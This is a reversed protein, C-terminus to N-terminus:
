YLAKTLEIFRKGVLILKDSELNFRGYYCATPYFAWSVIGKQNLFLYIIIGEDAFENTIYLLFDGLSYAIPKNNYIEVGNVVHPHHCIVADAGIDIIERVMKKTALLPELYFESGTHFQVIVFSGKEKQQQINKSLLDKNYNAIGPKKNDATFHKMVEYGRSETPVEAISFFALKMDDLEIIAPKIAEEINRGTGSHRYNYKDLINITNLLSKEGFDMAHNNACAFYDIGSDTFIGFEYESGKFTYRKPEPKLSDSIVCELNVSMIDPVKLIHKIDKFTHELGNKEIEKKLYYEFTFDGAFGIIKLDKDKKSFLKLNDLLITLKKKNLFGKKINYYVFRNKIVPKGSDQYLLVRKYINLSEIPSFLDDTIDNSNVFFLDDTIDVNAYYKQLIFVNEEFEHQFSEKENIVLSSYYKKLFLDFLNFKKNPNRIESIEVVREIENIIKKNEIKSIIYLSNNLLYLSYLLLSIILVFSLISSLIIKKM